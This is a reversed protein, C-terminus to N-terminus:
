LQWVGPEFDSCVVFFTLPFRERQYLDYKPIARLYNLCYITM